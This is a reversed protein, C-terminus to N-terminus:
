NPQFQIFLSKCIDSEDDTLDAKGEADDIDDGAGDDLDEDDDVVVFDNLVEVNRKLSLDRPKADHQQVQLQHQQHQVLQHQQHVLQQHQQQQQQQQQQVAMMSAALSPMMLPLGFNYALNLNYVSSAHATSTSSTTPPTASNLIDNIMFKPRSPAPTATAMPPPSSTAKVDESSSSSSSNSMDVVVSQNEVYDTDTNRPTVTMTITNNVCDSTDITM